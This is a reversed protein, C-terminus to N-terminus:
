KILLTGPRGIILNNSGCNGCKTPEINGSSFRLQKCRNCQYEWDENTAGIVTIKKNM